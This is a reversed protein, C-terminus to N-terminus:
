IVQNSPSYIREGLPEILRVLYGDPDQVLLERQGIELRDARYWTDKSAQFLPYSAAELRKIIPSVAGVDIQLNIGRGFPPSLSGTLWQNSRPDFQELMVQAGNLDLYAFGDELREYAVDFGLSGVWFNLSRTLDTVLLEPVLKNRTLM